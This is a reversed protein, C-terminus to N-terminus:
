KRSWGTGGRRGVPTISTPIFPSVLLFLLSVGLLIALVTVRIMYEDKLTQYNEQFNYGFVPNDGITDLYWYAEIPLMWDIGEPTMALVTRDGRPLPTSDQYALHGDWKKLVNKDLVHVAGPYTRFFAYLLLCLFILALPAAVCQVVRRPNIAYGETTEEGLLPLKKIKLLTPITQSEGCGSCRVTQGAQSAEM